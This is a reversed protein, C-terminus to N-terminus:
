HSLEKLLDDVKGVMKGIKFCKAPHDVSGQDELCEMEIEVLTNRLKNLLGEIKPQM